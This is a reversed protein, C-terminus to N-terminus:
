LASRILTPADVIVLGNPMLSAAAAYARTGLQAAIALAESRGMGEIRGRNPLDVMHVTWGAVSGPRLAPLPARRAVEHGRTVIEGEIADM